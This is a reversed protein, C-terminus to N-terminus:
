IGDREGESPRAYTSDSVVHARKIKEIITSPVEVEFEEEEDVPVDIEGDETFITIANFDVGPVLGLLLGRSRLNGILMRVDHALEEVTYGKPPNM